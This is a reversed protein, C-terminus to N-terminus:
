NGTVLNLMKLSFSYIFYDAWILTIYHFMNACVCNWSKEHTLFLCNLASNSYNQWPRQEPLQLGKPFTAAKTEKHDVYPQGGTTRRSGRCQWRQEHSAISFLVEEVNQELLTHLGWRWFHKELTVCPKNENRKMRPSFTKWRRVVAHVSIHFFSHCLLFVIQAPNVLQKKKLKISFLPIVTDRWILLLLSSPLTPAM